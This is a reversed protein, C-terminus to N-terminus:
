TSPPAPGPASRRRRRRILLMLLVFNVLGIGTLVSVATRMANVNAEENIRVVENQVEESAGAERAVAVVQDNSVASAADHLGAEIRAKGSDPIVTSDAVLSSYSSILVSIMVAGGIATGLAGGLNSVSKSVGSAADVLQPPASAQVLEQLQSILLGMGAGFLLMPVIFDVGTSHPAVVGIMVAGGALMLVFGAGILRTAGLRGVLRGGVVSALLIALSM